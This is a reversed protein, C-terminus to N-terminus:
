LKVGIDVRGRKSHRIRYVSDCDIPVSRLGNARRFAADEYTRKWEGAPRQFRRSDPLYGHARAWQGTVIQSGGIARSLRSPSFRSRNVEVVAPASVREIEADGDAHSTSALHDQVYGLPEGSATGSLIADGIRDISGGMYVYDCDTFALVDAETAKAALNRGIARRMLNGQDLPLFNWRVGQVGIGAFFALTAATDSDDPSHFVTAVLEFDRPPHLVFGSLQFALLRSYNWCHSVIEIRRM